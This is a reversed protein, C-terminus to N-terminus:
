FPRVVFELLDVLAIMIGDIKFCGIFFKFGKARIGYYIYYISVIIAMAATMNIDNNPSALEGHPLHILRLPLQGVLNASLIFMFLTLLLPLHKKGEKEGMNSSVINSFYNIIGEFIIQLKTPVLSLKRTAIFSVVILLAMTFWMMILTDLNVQMGMIQASLHEGM